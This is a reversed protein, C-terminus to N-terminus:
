LAPQSLHSALVYIYDQISAATVFVNLVDLAMDLLKLHTIRLLVM